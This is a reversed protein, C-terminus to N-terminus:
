NEADFRKPMIYYLTYRREKHLWMHRNLRSLSAFGCNCHDCKFPKEGTHTYLHMKLYYRKVFKKKCVPCEFENPPNHSRKHIVLAARTGFEKKCISCIHEFPQNHVKRLHSQLDRKNAAIQGCHKCIRNPNITTHLKMHARQNYDNSFSANCGPYTCAYPKRKYHSELHRRLKYPTSFSWLCNAYKCKYMKEKGHVTAKHKRFESASKFVEPCNEVDCKHLTKVGNAHTSKDATSVTEKVVAPKSIVPSVVLPSKENWSIDKPVFPLPKAAKNSSKLTNNIVFYNEASSQPVHVGATTECENETTVNYKFNNAGTSNLVCTSTPLLAANTFSPLINTSTTTDHKSIFNQFAQSSTSANITSANTAFDEILGLPRFKFHYDSGLGQTLAIDPNISISDSPLMLWVNGNTVNTVESAESSDIADDNHQASSINLADAIDISLNSSNKIAQLINEPVIVVNVNEKEYEM